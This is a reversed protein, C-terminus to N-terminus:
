NIKHPIGFMQDYFNISQELSSIKQMEVNLIVIMIGILIYSLLLAVKM